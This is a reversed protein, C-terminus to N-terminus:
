AHTNIYQIHTHRCTFNCIHKNVVFTYFSSVADEEGQSVVAVSLPVTNSYVLAFLVGTSSSPRINLRVDVNWSGADGLPVCVCVCLCLSFCIHKYKQFCVFM